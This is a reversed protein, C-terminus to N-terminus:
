RWAPCTGSATLEAMFSNIYGQWTSGGEFDINLGDAGGELMKNQINVFFDSKYTPNTILTLIDGGTEDFLTAVLIVKVGNQHAQNIVGTWPWGHDSGLSGDANVEVSFCAVHTLLEYQLYESSSWYPLYGFVTACPRPTSTRTQLPIVLEDPAGLLGPCTPTGRHAKSELRHLEGPHTGDGARAVSALSACVALFVLVRIM